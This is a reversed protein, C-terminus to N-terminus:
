DGVGCIAADALGKLEDFHENILGPSRKRRVVVRGVEYRETLLREIEALIETTGPKGNHVLAVTKGTLGGRRQTLSETVAVPRGTPSLFAITGM